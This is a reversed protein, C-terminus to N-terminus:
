SGISLPSIGASTIFANLATVPQAFNNQVATSLPSQFGWTVVGYVEGTAADFLPGGSNGHDTQADYEILKNDPLANVSGEHLSPSLGLDEMALTVQIAPYGAVAIPRGEEPLSHALPVVPLAGVEVAIIAADASANAISVVRADLATRLGYLVVKISGEDGIVHHNTLLYSVHANSAICFGSGTMLGDTGINAILAISHKLKAYTGSVSDSRPGVIFYSSTIKTFSPDQLFWRGSLDVTNWTGKYVTTIVGDSDRDNAELEVSYATPSIGTVTAHQSVTSNFGAKWAPFSRSRRESPSLLDFAKTFSRSNLDSYYLNITQLANVLENAIGSHHPAIIGSQHSLRYAEIGTPIGLGFALILILVSGGARRRASSVPGDGHGARNGCNECYRAGRMMRNGCSVCFRGASTVPTVRTDELDESM